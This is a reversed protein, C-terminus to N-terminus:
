LSRTHKYPHATEWDVFFALAYRSQICGLAAVGCAPSSIKHLCIRCTRESFLFVASKGSWLFELGAERVVVGTHFDASFGCPVLIQRSM